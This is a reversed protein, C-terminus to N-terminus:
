NGSERIASNGVYVCQRPNGANGSQRHIGRPNGSNGSQRLIGTIATEWNGVNGLQRNGLIAPTEWNEWFNGMGLQRIM